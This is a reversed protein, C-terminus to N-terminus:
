NDSENKRNEVYKQKFTWYQKTYTPSASGLPRNVNEKASMTIERSKDRFTNNSVPIIIDGSPFRLKIRKVLFDM